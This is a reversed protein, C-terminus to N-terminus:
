LMNGPRKLEKPILLVLTGGILMLVAIGYLGSLSNNTAMSVAGFAYQAAYGASAAVTNLVGIGVAVSDGRLYTTAYAWFVGVCSLIGTYALSLAAIALYFNVHQIAVLLSIGSIAAAIAYHWRRERFRDSSYGWAIMGFTACISPIATILGNRSLSEVGLDRVIQPLWYAFGSIAVGGITEVTALVLFTKSSLADRVKTNSQTVCTPHVDIALISVLWGKERM